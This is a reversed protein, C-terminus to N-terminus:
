PRVLATIAIVATIGLLGALVVVFWELTRIRQEMEVISLSKM